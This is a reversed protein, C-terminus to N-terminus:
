LKVHKLLIRGIRLQIVHLYMYYQFEKTKRKIVIVTFLGQFIYKKEKVTRTIIQSKILELHSRRFRVKRNKM